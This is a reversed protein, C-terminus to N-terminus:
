PIPVRELLEQHWNLVVNIEPLAVEDTGPQDIVSSLLLFRQGDTDVAIRRNLGGLPYPTLDFLRTVAGPRFTPETEFALAMLGDAGRFFLEPGAPNWVPMVGGNSSVEWRGSDTDPFPRVYIEYQGTEDSQYAIWRGDPSLAANRESFEEQLLLSVTGRSDLTVVGLDGHTEVVLVGEDPSFAQPFTTPSESLPEVEGTGDAAKWALPSGFAVRTGDPTWTPFTSPDGEFTLRTNTQRILDFIWVDSGNGRFVRVAVRTGEPSLSFERFSRPEAVAPEERGDRDVWQLTRLLVGGGGIGGLAYVLRGNDSISFNAAGSSKVAVGGILPGPNGTVALRDADFPVARVSGDEAAYVLHGTPVYHPSIGALGLRTVEGTRLDLVALQGTTLPADTSIVFLVAERGRIISPWTHSSEGQETDLITLREPEGGGGSVRFLGDNVTGFIIQDDAGWSAGIVQSASETLTVPPGGFVSVKQLLTFGDFNTFGVWEGNPSVFPDIGGDGGRLPAGGFQDIPRLNLQPGSGDPRGGKYVVQTGDPSIALDRGPGVFNLDATDPPVITFRMLGAPVVDPRTVSWGALSGIAAIVLTLAAAPAPRQWVRLRPPVGQTTPASVATEFAGKLALRVDGVDRLREKPDKELCRRLVTRVNAPVGRPLTKVDVDSKMVSALTLSVDEGQFPRRGALMEYLVVGFAWIDARKDVPKGRAQEPSMYAATGLIVGMQTAAATLTPSQSPDVDSALDLAKALGFDLVKM